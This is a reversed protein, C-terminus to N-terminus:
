ISRGLLIGVLIEAVISPFVNVNFKGMLLPIMLAALLVIVLSLKEM